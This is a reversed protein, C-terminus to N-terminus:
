SVRAHHPAKCLGSDKVVSPVRLEAARGNTSGCFFVAVTSHVQRAAIKHHGEGLSSSASQRASCQDVQSSATGAGPFPPKRPQRGHNMPDAITPSYLRRIKLAARVRYSQCTSAQDQVRGNNGCAVCWSTERGADMTMGIRTSDM